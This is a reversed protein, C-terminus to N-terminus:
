KANIILRVKLESPRLRNRDNMLEISFLTLSANIEQVRESENGIPIIEMKLGNKSSYRKCFEESSRLLQLTDPTFYFPETLLM